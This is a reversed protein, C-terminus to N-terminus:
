IKEAYLLGKSSALASFRNLFEDERDPKEETEESMEIEEVKEDIAQGEEGATVSESTDKELLSPLINGLGAPTEAASAFSVAPREEIGRASLIDGDAPVEEMGEKLREIYEFPVFWLPSNACRLVHGAM